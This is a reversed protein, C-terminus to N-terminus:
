KHAEKDPQNIPNLKQTRPTAESELAVSAIVKELLDIYMKKAQWDRINGEAQQQKIYELASQISPDVKHRKLYTPMNTAAVGLCIFHWLKLSSFSLLEIAKLAPTLIGFLGHLVVGILVGLSTGKPNSVFLVNLARRILETTSDNNM